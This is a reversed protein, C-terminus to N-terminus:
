IENKLYSKIQKSIIKLGFEPKLLSEKEDKFLDILQFCQVDEPLLNKVDDEIKGSVLFIRKVKDSFKKILEGTAKGEFSQIDFKGEGTILYDVESLNRERFINEIIFDRSSLIDANFFIKLGAALGGGAGNISSFDSILNKKIMLEIIIEIGKKIIDLDEKTAGKQPGYLDIASNYGLLPTQVDVICQMKSQTFPQTMSHNSSQITPHSFSSPFIIESILSFNAPIPEVERGYNDLFKIGLANVAGLGFDITSTGGVGIVIKEFFPVSYSNKSKLLDQILRGLPFTNLKLPNRKQQPLKKLGIIEASEIFVEKTSKNFIVPAIFKEGAFEISFKQEIIENGSIFKIVELFGDGGDSLPLVSLQFNKENSLEKAIIEAIKISSLSEKFSNPAILIKMM